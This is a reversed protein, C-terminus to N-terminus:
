GCNGSWCGFGRDGSDGHNPEDDSALLPLHLRLDRLEVSRRARLSPTSPLCRRWSRNPSRAYFGVAFGSIEITCEKRFRAQM